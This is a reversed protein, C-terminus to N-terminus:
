WEPHEDLFELLGSISPKYDQPMSTDDLLRRGFDRATKVQHASVYLSLTLTGMDARAVVDQSDTLEFEMRLQSAAREYLDRADQGRGKDLLKYASEIKGVIDKPINDFGVVAEGTVRRESVGPHVLRGLAEIAM